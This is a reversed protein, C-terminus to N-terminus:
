SVPVPTSVAKLLLSMETSVAASAVQVRHSFSRLQTLSSSRAQETLLKARAEDAKVVAEAAPAFAPPFRLGALSTDFANISVVEARLAAEATALDSGQSADFAAVDVNQQQAAPTMMGMYQSYLMRETMCDHAESTTGPECGAALAVAESRRSTGTAYVLGGVVLLAALASVVLLIVKGAQEQRSADPEKTSNM